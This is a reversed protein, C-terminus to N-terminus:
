LHCLCQISKWFAFYMSLSLHISHLNICRVFALDCTNGTSNTGACYLALQPPLSINLALVSNKNHCNTTLLVKQPTHFMNSTIHYSLAQSILIWKKLWRALRYASISKAIILLSAPALPQPSTSDPLTFSIKVRFRAPYEIGRSHSVTVTTLHHNHLICHARLFSYVFQSLLLSSTLLSLSM